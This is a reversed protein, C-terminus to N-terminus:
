ELTPKESKLQLCKKAQSDNLVVVNKVGVGWTHVTKIGQTHVFVSM